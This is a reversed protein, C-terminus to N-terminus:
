LAGMLVAQLNVLFTPSYEPLNLRFHSHQADNINNPDLVQCTLDTNNIDTAVPQTRIQSDLFMSGCEYAQRQM